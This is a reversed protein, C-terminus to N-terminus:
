PSAVIYEIVFGHVNIDVPQAVIQFAVLGDLDQRNPTISIFHDFSIALPKKERKNIKEYQGNTARM